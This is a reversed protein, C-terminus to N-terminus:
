RRECDDIEANVGGEGRKVTDALGVSRGLQGAFACQHDAIRERKKGAVREGSQGSLPTRLCWPPM